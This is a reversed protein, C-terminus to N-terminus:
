QAPVRTVALSSMLMRLLGKAVFFRLDAASISLVTVKTPFLACDPQAVTEHAALAQIEVTPYLSMSGLRPLLSAQENAEAWRYWLSDRNSALAWAQADADSVAGNTGNVVPPPPPTADTLNAPPVKTVGYPAWLAACAHPVQGIATTTTVSACPGAAASPRSLATPTASVAPRHSPTPTGCSSLALVAVTVSVAGRVCGM